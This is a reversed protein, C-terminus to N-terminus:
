GAQNDRVQILTALVAQMRGIERRALERSMKGDGVRRRYVRERFTLEREVCAIQEELSVPFLDEM